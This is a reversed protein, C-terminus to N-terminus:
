RNISEEKELTGSTRNSEKSKRKAKLASTVTTASPGKLGYKNLV